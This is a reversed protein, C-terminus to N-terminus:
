VKSKLVQKIQYVVGNHNNDKKTIKPNFTLLSKNANKMAFGNPFSTILTIDNTSDGFTLVNEIKIKYYQRIKEIIAGKDINKLHLDFYDGCGWFQAEYLPYNENIYNSIFDRNEMSLDTLHFVYSLAGDKITSNLPGEINNLINNERIIFAFPEYIDYYITTQNEVFGSHVHGNTLFKYIKKVDNSNIVHECTPFNEDIPNCYFAGNYCILPGNLGIEKYYPLATRIPRGTSIAVINGAKELKRLYLKTSLSIKKKDTLLTGDLDVAILYKEKTVM